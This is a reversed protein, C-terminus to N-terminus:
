LYNVCTIVCAVVNETECFSFFNMTYNWLNDMGGEHFPNIRLGGEGEKQFNWNPKMCKRFTKPRQSGVGVGLFKRDRRHLSYPCKGSGCM